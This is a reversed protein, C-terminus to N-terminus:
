RSYRPSGGWGLMRRLRSYYSRMGVRVLLFPKEARCVRVKEDAGLGRRLQGDVIVVAPPDGKRLYVDIRQDAPIVLSRQSLAHAALPTIVIAQLDPDLIPGGAALNYATSGTPTALVVGDGAYSVADRHEIKASVHFLRGSQAGTVVVDNLAHHEWDGVQATLRMRDRIHVKGARMRDLADGLRRYEVETLFGLRGFNVAMTPLPRDGMRRSASLVAGDGGFVLAWSAEVRALDLTGELDVAAVGFERELRPRIAEVAEAVGKKAANGLVLVPGM